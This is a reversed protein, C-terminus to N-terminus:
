AALAVTARANAESPRGFWGALMAGMAICGLWTCGIAAVEFQDDVNAGETAVFWGLAVITAVVVVTGTWRIAGTLRDTVPIVWAIAALAVAVLLYGADELAIFVGHPNYMSLLLVDRGEGHVLSPAVVALQMVYDAALIGLALLALYSAVAGALWRDPTAVERVALALVVLAAIMALAGIMWVFDGPVYHAAADYPYSLCGSPCHPGSRPPTTIGLGLAVVGAVATAAGAVRGIRRGAEPQRGKSEIM